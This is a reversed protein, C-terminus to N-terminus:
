EKKYLYGPVAGFTIAIIPGGLAFILAWSPVGFWMLSAIRVNSFLCYFLLAYVIGKIVGKRPICKYVECFVITIFHISDLM